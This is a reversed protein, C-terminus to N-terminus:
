TKEWQALLASVFKNNSLPEITEGRIYAALTKAGEQEVKTLESEEAGEIDTDVIVAAEIPGTGDLYVSQVLGGDLHIIIRTNM